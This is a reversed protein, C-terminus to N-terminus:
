NLLLALTSAVVYAGRLGRPAAPGAASGNKLAGFFNLYSQPPVRQGRKEGSCYEAALRLSEAEQDRERRLLAERVNPVPAVPAAVRSKAGAEDMAPLVERLIEDGFRYVLNEFLISTLQSPRVLPYNKM